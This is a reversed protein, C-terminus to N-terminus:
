RSAAQSQLVVDTQVDEVRGVVLGEACFLLHLVSNGQGEVAMRVLVSVKRSRGRGNRWLSIGKGTSRSCAPRSFHMAEPIPADIPLLGPPSLQHAPHHATRLWETAM